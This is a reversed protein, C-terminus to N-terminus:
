LETVLVPMANMDRSEKVLQELNARFQKPSVRLEVSDSDSEGDKGAAHELRPRAGLPAGLLQYIRIDKLLNHLFRSGANSTGLERDPLNIAPFHDNWGFCIVVVDPKVDELEPLRRIAQETTYGPVSANWAVLGPGTTSGDALRAATEPYTRYRIATVSDGLCLVRIIRGHQTKVPPPSEQINELTGDDAVTLGYLNGGKRLRWLLFPDSAFADTSFRTNLSEAAAQLTKMQGHLDIQPRSYGALRLGLELM